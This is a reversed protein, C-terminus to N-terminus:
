MRFGNGETDALQKRRKYINISIHNSIFNWFDKSLSWLDEEGVMVGRLEDERIPFARTRCYDLLDGWQSNYTSCHDAIKMRWLKFQDPKSKEDQLTPIKEVGKRSIEWKKSTPSLKPNFPTWPTNAKNIPM